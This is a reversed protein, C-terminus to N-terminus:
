DKEEIWNQQISELIRENCRDHDDDFDDLSMVLSRLEVFNIWQPDKEPYKEPKNIKDNIAYTDTADCVPCGTWESYDDRGCKTCWLKQLYHEAM